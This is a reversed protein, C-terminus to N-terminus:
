PLWALTAMRGTQAGDRRHSFFRTAERFTCRGGGDVPAVGVGHLRQRALEYLDAYWRGDAGASFAIRARRDRDVFAAWVEEGVVFADRGIAPGLWARLEHAPVPLAAVTAELVGRALGRWGAHATAVCRGRRDALVVPLCDATLVACVAGREDTWAADATPRDNTGAASAPIHVPTAGHVQDLWGPERPLGLVRDVRSRNAVLCDPADGAREGLNLTACPGLSLGGRRTTTAAAVLGRGGRAAWPPGITDLGDCM